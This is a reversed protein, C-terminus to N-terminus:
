GLYLVWRGSLDPHQAAAAAAGLLVLAAIIVKTQAM